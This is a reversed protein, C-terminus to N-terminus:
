QGAEIPVHRRPIRRPLVVIRCAECTQAPLDRKKLKLPKMTAKCCRCIFRVEPAPVITHPIFM